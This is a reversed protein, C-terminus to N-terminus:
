AHKEAVQAFASAAATLTLNIIEDNHEASIFGAEFASPALYIGSNLMLHFFDNFMAINSSAVDKYNNAKEIGFFFGFMGCVHNECVTIGNKSAAEVLGATLKDTAKTIKAYVDPTLHNLTTLGASMALPNGSLTGAQYIPGLPAIQSMIDKRGGFAGVPLGGGVIKGLTTLDPTVGYIEQAGGPAVRFGSMVEDFILVGGFKETLSKLGHLFVPDPLICGMNGAIPEVIVCAIQDGYTNFLQETAELDNYPVTLTKEALAAPVGPSNPLGLTLVGSGAKVLLSDSHGHYCGEFKVILDRGTFGRALRIASMTAETGSNVMRVSEMSPMIEVIKEAVMIEIETPAGFGLAKSAQKTVADITPQHNHGLIMPGWSGIYDIYANDDVDYIYAGQGREFFIPDGGVGKFARVPSNVGGPITQCAREILAKSKDRNM